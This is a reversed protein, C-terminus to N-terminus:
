SAAEVASGLMARSAVALAEVAMRRAAGVHAAYLSRLAESTERLMEPRALMGEAVTAVDAATLVGRLEPVVQRGADINPQALFRFRRGIKHALWIKLPVGILPVRHLYGALGPVVAEDL